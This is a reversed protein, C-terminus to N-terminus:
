FLDGQRPAAILEAGENRPNKAADGVRWATLEEGFTAPASRQLAEAGSLQPDLWIRVKDAPILVPSRDHIAAVPKAPAGTLISFGEDKVIGGLFLPQEDSPRLFYWPRNRASKPGQPEYFGSALVVCRGQDFHARYEPVRHATESRVNIRNGRSTPFAWLQEVARPSADDALGAIWARTGPAINYRPSDDHGEGFLDNAAISLLESWASLPQYRAFRGCM